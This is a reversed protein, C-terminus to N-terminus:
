NSGSLWPLFKWCLGFPIFSKPRFQKSLLTIFFFPKRSAVLPMWSWPQFLIPFDECEVKPMLWSLLLCTIPTTSASAPLIWIVTRAVRIESELFFSNQELCVQCREPRCSKNGHKDKRLCLQRFPASQSFLLLTQLALLWQASFVLLRCLNGFNGM